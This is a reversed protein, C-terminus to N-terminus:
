DSSYEIITLSSVSYLKSNRLKLPPQVPEDSDVSTLIGCQTLDWAVAWWDTKNCFIEHNRLSPLETYGKGCKVCTYPRVGHLRKHKLCASSDGFKRGCIECSYAKEGTHKREHRILHHFRHFFKNCFRCFFGLNPKVLNPTPDRRDAFLYRCTLKFPVAVKFALADWICTRILDHM